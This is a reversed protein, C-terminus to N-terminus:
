ETNMDIMCLKNLLILCCTQMQQIKYHLKTTRTQQQVQEPITPDGIEAYDGEKNEKPDQLTLHTFLSWMFRDVFLWTNCLLTIPM